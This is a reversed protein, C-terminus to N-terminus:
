DAAGSQVGGLRGLVNHFQGLDIRIERRKRVYRQLRPCNIRRVVHAFARRRTLRVVVRAFLLQGQFRQRAVQEDVLHALSIAPNVNIVEDERRETGVCEEGVEARLAELADDVSL